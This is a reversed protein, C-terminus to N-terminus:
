KGRELERGRRIAAVYKPFTQPARMKADTVNNYEGNANFLEFAAVEDPDDVPAPYLAERAAAECAEFGVDNAAKFWIAKAVREAAGDDILMGRENLYRLVTVNSHCHNDRMDRALKQMDDETM